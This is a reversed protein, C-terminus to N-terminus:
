SVRAIGLGLTRCLGLWRRLVGGVGRGRGRRGLRRGRRPHRRLAQVARLGITPCSCALRTTDPTQANDRM